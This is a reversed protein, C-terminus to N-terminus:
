QPFSGLSSNKFVRFVISKECNPSKKACGRVFFYKDEEKSRCLLFIMMEVHVKSVSTYLNLTKPRNAKDCARALRVDVCAFMTALWWDCTLTFIFFVFSNKEILIDAFAVSCKEFANINILRIM